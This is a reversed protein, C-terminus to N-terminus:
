RLFFLLFVIKFNFSELFIINDLNPINDYLTKDLFLSLNFSENKKPDSKLDQITWCLSLTLLFYQSHDIFSCPQDYAKWFDTIVKHLGQYNKM